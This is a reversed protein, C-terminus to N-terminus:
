WMGGWSDGGSPKQNVKCWDSHQGGTKWTGCTCGGTRLTKYDTHVSMHEKPIKLVGSELMEIMERKSWPGASITSYDEKVVFKNVAERTIILTEIQFLGIRYFLVCPLGLEWTYIFQDVAEKDM